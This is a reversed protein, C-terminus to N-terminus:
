RLMNRIGFLFSILFKPFDRLLIEKRVDPISLYKHVLVIVYWLLHTLLARMVKPTANKRLGKFKLSLLLLFFCFATYTKKTASIHVRWQGFHIRRDCGCLLCLFQANRNIRKKKNILKYYLLLRQKAPPKTIAINCNLVWTSEAALGRIYDWLRSKHCGFSSVSPDKRTNSSNIIVDEDFYRRTCTVWRVFYLM